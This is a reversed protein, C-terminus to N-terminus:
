GFRSQSDRGLCRSSLFVCKKVFNGCKVSRKGGGKVLSSERERKRECARVCVIDTVERFM